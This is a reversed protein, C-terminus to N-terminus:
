QKSEHYVGTIEVFKNNLITQMRKFLDINLKYFIQLGDRKHIYIIKSNNLMNIHRIVTTVPIDLQKALQTTTLEGHKAIMDIIKLRIENGCSVIFEDVPIDTADFQEAFSQDFLYGLLIFLGNIESYSGLVLHQNLLCISITSSFLEQSEVKLLKQYLHSTAENEIQGIKTYIEKEYKKHLNKVCLYTKKLIKALEATVFSFNGFLISLNLKYETTANLKSLDKIFEASSISVNENSAKDFICQYTMQHLRESKTTIKVIFSDITDNQYDIEESFFMSLPSSLGDKITFFPLLFEPIYTIQDAISQYCNRTFGSNRYQKTYNNEIEQPNFHVILFFISDYIMGIEPIYTM